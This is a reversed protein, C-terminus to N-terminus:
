IESKKVSGIDCVGDGPKKDSEDGTSNVKIGVVRVEIGQIKQGSDTDARAEFIFDPNWPLEPEWLFVFAMLIIYIFFRFFSTLIILRAWPNLNTISHKM